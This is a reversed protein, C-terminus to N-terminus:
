LLGEEASRLPWASMQVLHNNLYSPGLSYSPKTPLGADHIPSPFGSSALTFTQMRPTMLHFTSKDLLVCATANQELQLKQITKLPLEM